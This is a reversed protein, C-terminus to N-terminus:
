GHITHRSKCSVCSTNRSDSEISITDPGQCGGAAISSNFEPLRINKSPFPADLLKHEPSFKTAKTRAWFM